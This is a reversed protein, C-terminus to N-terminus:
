PEVVFEVRRNLARGEQTDNPAVPREGGYGVVDIRDARSGQEILYSRVAEARDVSLSYMASSDGVRATHGVIIIRGKVQKIRSRVRELEPHSEPLIEATNPAFYIENSFEVVVNEHISDVVSRFEQIKDREMRRPESPVQGLPVTTMHEAALLVRNEPIAPNYVEAIGSLTYAITAEASTSFVVDTGRVGLVASPGHLEIRQKRLIRRLRSFITGYEPTLVISRLTNENVTLKTSEAVRILTGGGFRIDILGSEDTRVSDGQNLRTNVRLEQWQDELQRQYDASGSVFTVIARERILLPNQVVVLDKRALFLVFLVAAIVLIFVFSTAVTVSVRRNKFIGLGKSLGM